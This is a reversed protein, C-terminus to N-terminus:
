STHEESRAAGSVWLCTTAVNGYAQLTATAPGTIVVPKADIMVTEGVANNIKQFSWHQGSFGVDVVGTAGMTFIGQGFCLWKGAPIALTHITTITAAAVALNTTRWTGSVSGLAGVIAANPQIAAVDAATFTTGGWTIPNAAAPAFWVLLNGARDPCILAAPQAIDYRQWATGDFYANSTMFSNDRSNLFGLGTPAELKTHQESAGILGIRNLRRKLAAPLLGRHKDTADENAPPKYNVYQQM